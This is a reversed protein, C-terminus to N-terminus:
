AKNRRGIFRSSFQPNERLFWSILFDFPDRIKFRLYVYGICSASGAGLGDVILDWMTDRLGNKQMNLGFLQDMAFEFIEWIAGIALGFTFAFLSLLFPSAKLKHRAYLLYLTLFGVFGFAFASGAHLVVDWWWFREYYDGVEGLFISAYLFLTSALQFQLPLKIRISSALLLPLYSLLLTGAAAFAVSWRGRALAYAGVLLLALRILLTVRYIVRESLPLQKTRRSLM